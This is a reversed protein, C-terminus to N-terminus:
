GFVETWPSGPMILLGRSEIPEHSFKIRRRRHDSGGALSMRSTIAPHIGIRGERDLLQRFRNSKVSNM